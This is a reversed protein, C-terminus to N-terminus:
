LAFVPASAAIYDGVQLHEVKAVVGDAPATIVTYSLDLQAKDLAAQAQQVLPHREPAIDTVALQAGEDALRCVDDVGRNVPGSRANLVRTTLPRRRSRHRGKRQGTKADAARAM